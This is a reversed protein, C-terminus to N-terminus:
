YLIAKIQELNQLATERGIDITRNMNDTDFLDIAPLDPYLIYDCDKSHFLNSANGQIEVSRAIIDLIPPRSFYKKFRKWPNGKHDRIKTKLSYKKENYNSFSCSVVDVAIIKNFGKDHLINAPLNNLLGGDVIQYNGIKIPPFFAPLSVTGRMATAIYGKEFVISRGSNLDSGTCYFPIDLDEFRVRGFLKLINRNLKHGKFFSVIPLTKDIIVKPTTGMTKLIHAITNADKGMAYLAGVLAGMSSGSVGDFHIGEQQLVDIIGIHALAYAGGGGLTLGRSTGGLKRAIRSIGDLLSREKNDLLSIATTTYLNYHSKYLASYTNITQASGQGRATCNDSIVIVKEFFNKLHDKAYAITKRWTQSTNNQSNANANRMLVIYDCQSLISNLIPNDLHNGADILIHNYYKRLHGLLGPLTKALEALDLGPKYIDTGLLTSFGLSSPKIDFSPNQPNPWHELMKLLSIASSEETKRKVHNNLNILLVSGPSENVLCEALRTCFEGGREPLEPYFFAFSRAPTEQVEENLNQRLRSSLLRALFSAIKPQTDILKMFFSAPIAFIHSDLSAIAHSTHVAGSLVSVEGFLSGHRQIGVLKKKHKQETYSDSSVNQIIHIEGDQVVYVYTSPEGHRYLYESKPCHLLSVTSVLEDFMKKDILVSKFLHNQSFFRRTSKEQKPSQQLNEM